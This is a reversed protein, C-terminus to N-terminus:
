YNCTHGTFTGISGGIGVGGSLHVNQGIQACSGVTAWSDVMTGRDIYAGINIFSPMLVVGPAIFASKRVICGPVARFGAQSFEERRWDAFKLPVKDWWSATDPGGKIVNMPNLKFSLLLAKKLWQNIQWGGNNSVPEAVRCIGRDLLDLIEEVAERVPGNTDVNITNRNEFAHDIIGELKKFLIKEM